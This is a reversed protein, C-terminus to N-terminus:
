SISHVKQQRWTCTHPDKNLLMALSETVVDTFIIGERESEWCDAITLKNEAQQPVEPVM